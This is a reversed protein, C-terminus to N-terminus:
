LHLQRFAPDTESQPWWEDFDRCLKPAMRADRWNIWANEMHNYDPRWLLALDDVLIWNNRIDRHEEPLRRIGMYSPFRRFCTILQHGQRVAERADSFLVRIRSNPSVRVFSGIQSFVERRNLLAPDLNPALIRISRRASSLLKDCETQLAELGHVSQIDDVPGETM